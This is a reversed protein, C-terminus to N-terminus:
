DIYPQVQIKFDIFVVDLRLISYSGLVEIENWKVVAVVGGGEEMQGEFDQSIWHEIDQSWVLSLNGMTM